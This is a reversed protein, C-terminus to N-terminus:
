GYLQADLPGVTLSWVGQDDKTMALNTAGIWDANFTVENAKPAYLRFTVHHDAAIEPSHLRPGPAFTQGYAACAISAAALTMASVSRKM